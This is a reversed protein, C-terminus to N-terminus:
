LNLLKSFCCCLEYEGMQEIENQHDIVYTSCFRNIEDGKEPYEKNLIGRAKDMIEQTEKPAQRKKGGYSKASDKKFYNEITTKVEKFVYSRYGKETEVAEEGTVDILINEKIATKCMEFFVSYKEDDDEFGAIYALDQFSTSPSMEAGEAGLCFDFYHNRAEKTKQDVETREMSARIAQEWIGIYYPDNKNFLLKSTKRDLKVDKQYYSLNM